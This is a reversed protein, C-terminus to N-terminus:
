WRSVTGLVRAIRDFWWSLSTMLGVRHTLLPISLLLLLGHTFWILIGSFLWGEGRLDPQDVRLVHATLSLHFAYAAGLGFHFGLLVRQTDLWIGAGLFLLTWLFAYLPFFYPALVIFANSKTLVVHGGRPTARFAKVRGGFAVAWLAHTLEHGVVYLWMPKPLSLFVIAWCVAGALFPVWFHVVSGTAAILDAITWSLAICLPFLLLALAWRLIRRAVTRAPPTNKLGKSM